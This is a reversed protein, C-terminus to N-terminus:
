FKPVNKLPSINGPGIQLSSTNVVLGGKTNPIVLQGVVYKWNIVDIYCLSPTDNTPVTRYEDVEVSTM